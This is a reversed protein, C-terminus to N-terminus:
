PTESNAVSKKEKSELARMPLFVGITFIAAIGIRYIDPMIMAWVFLGFTLLLTLLLMVRTSLIAMWMAVSKLLFEVTKGDM